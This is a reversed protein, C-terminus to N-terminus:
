NKVFVIFVAAGRHPGGNQQDTLAALPHAAL